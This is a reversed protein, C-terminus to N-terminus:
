KRAPAAYVGLHNAVIRERGPLYNDIPTNLILPLGDAGGIALTVSGGGDLNIANYLGYELALQGFEAMSMGESFNPQRGDVLLIILTDTDRTYGVAIRPQPELRYKDGVATRAVNQGGKVLLVDGSIANYADGVPTDISVRNDRSIYLTPHANNGPSFVRGESMSIGITYVRDGYRPYYNFPTTSHFPYFFDGNIALQLHHQQLFETTKM